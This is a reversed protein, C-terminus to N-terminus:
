SGPRPGAAAMVGMPIRSALQDRLRPNSPPRYYTHNPPDAHIQWLIIGAIQRPWTVFCCKTTTRAPSLENCGCQNAPSEGLKSLRTSGCCACATPGPVLVRERPLHPPFPKRVPKRRAHAPVLTVAGGAEATAKEAAIEDEAAAAERDELELEMQDLLKRRRESRSGYLERRMKEIALKLHAILAEAPSM